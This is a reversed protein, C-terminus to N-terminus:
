CFPVVFLKWGEWGRGEGGMGEGGRRGRVARMGKRAGGKSEEGRWLQSTLAIPRQGGCMTLWDCGCWRQLRTQRSLKALIFSSALEVRRMLNVNELGVFERLRETRAAMDAAWKFRNADTEEASSGRILIFDM